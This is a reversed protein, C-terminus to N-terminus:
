LVRPSNRRDSARECYSRVSCSRRTPSGGIVGIAPRTVVGVPSESVWWESVIWQCARPLSGNRPVRALFLLFRASGVDRFERETAKWNSGAGPSTTEQRDNSWLDIRSARLNARARAHRDFDEFWRRRIRLERSGRTGSRERNCVVCGQGEYEIM